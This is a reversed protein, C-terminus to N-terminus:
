LPSNADDLRYSRIGGDTLTVAIQGSAVAPPQHGTAPLAEDWLLTGDVLDWAYLHDDRVTLLWSGSATSVMQHPEAETIYGESAGETHPERTEDFRRQVEGSALSVVAEPYIAQGLRIVPVHPTDIVWLTQGTSSDYASGGVLVCDPTCVPARLEASATWCIDGTVSDMARLAGEETLVILRGDCVALPRKVGSSLKRKWAIAGTKIEVAYVQGDWAGCLLLDQCVTPTATLPSKLSLRWINRGTYADVADICGDAECLYALGDLIMPAALAKDDTQAFCEMDGARHRWKIRGDQRDLCYYHGDGLGAFVRGYRIVPASPQVKGSDDPIFEWQAFPLGRLVVPGAGQRESTRGLM